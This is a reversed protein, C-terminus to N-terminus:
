LVLRHEGIKRTIRERDLYGLLPIAYKRSLGKLQKFRAVDITQGRLQSIESRLRALVREHIFLEENGLKVLTKSRLLLTMLRRMERLDIALKGALEAPSPSVLGAVEFHEAISLLLEHDKEPIQGYSDVPLIWEQRIQLRREGALKELVHDFVELNLRGHTRLESRKVGLSASATALQDLSSMVVRRTREFSEATLFLDGAIHILQGTALLPSMMRSVADTTFGTEASLASRHLGHVDRREIRLLLQQEISSGRLQLLWKLCESKRWGSVPQTDLVRGGGITKAPSQSRLVFRDGPALVIPKSLKLRMLRADRSAAPEVAYLSVKAAAEASFAHFQVHCGHKLEQTGPLLCVEVDIMTAPLLSGPQLVTQGRWIESANVGVLNLAVRSGAHAVEDAHGHVQIGRVRVTRSGPEITLNQGCQFRGAVMTGTVVTGFGKMVFARDVPLRPVADPNRAPTRAALSILESRLHDLGHGSYASVPIIPARGNDLFTGSIFRQISQCVEDLRTASVRDVKTVVTLGVNVGLMECIALHEETQPKVGEDASIVLMVADIGGAGALMNRIFHHHGPVDVFSIRLPAGINDITDLCAFGLDITIGRRKEEPLRDTDVGTMAHVLTTKGHDIHGATGIVISRQQTIADHSIM